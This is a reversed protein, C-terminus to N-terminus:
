ADVVGGCWWWDTLCGKRGPEIVFESLVRKVEEGRIM